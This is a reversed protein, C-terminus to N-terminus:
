VKGEVIKGMNICDSVYLRITTPSDCNPLSNGQPPLSSIGTGSTKNDGLIQYLLLGGFLM